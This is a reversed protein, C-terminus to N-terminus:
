NNERIQPKEVKGRTDTTRDKGAVEQPDGHSLYTCSWTVALKSEEVQNEAWLGTGLLCREDTGRPKSSMHSLSHNDGTMTEFRTMWAIFPCSPNARRLDCAWRPGIMQPQSCPSLKNGRWEAPVTPPTSESFPTCFGGFMSAADNQSVAAIKQNGWWQSKNWKGAQESLIKKIAKSGRWRRLGKYRIAGEGWEHPLMEKFSRNTEQFCFGCVDARDAEAQVRQM